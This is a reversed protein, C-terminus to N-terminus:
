AACKSSATTSSATSFSAHAMSGNLAYLSGLAVASGEMDTHMDLMGKHAKLNTGGTDFCVGKGVGGLTIGPDADEPEYSMIIFQPEEVSGASVAIFANM